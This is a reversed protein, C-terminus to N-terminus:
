VGILAVRTNSFYTNFFGNRRTRTSCFPMHLWIIFLIDFNSYIFGLNYFLITDYYIYSSNSLDVLFQCSAIEEHHVLPSPPLKAKRTVAFHHRQLPRTGIFSLLSRYFAQFHRQSPTLAGYVRGVCNERKNPHM